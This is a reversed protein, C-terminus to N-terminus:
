ECIFATAATNPTGGPANGCPQLSNRGYKSSITAANVTLSTPRRRAASMTVGREREGNLDRQEREDREMTHDRDSRRRFGNSPPETELPRRLMLASALMSVALRAAHAAVGRVTRIAGVARPLWSSNRWVCRRM